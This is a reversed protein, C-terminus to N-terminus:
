HMPLQLITRIAGSPDVAGEALGNSCEGEVYDFDGIIFALLYTSMIPTEAFTVRKCPVGDVPEVDIEEIAPMNSIAIRDSPYILSVACSSDIVRPTPVQESDISEISAIALLSRPLHGQHCTRGLMPHM